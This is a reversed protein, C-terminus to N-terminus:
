RTVVKGRTFAHACCAQVWTDLVAIVHHAPVAQARYLMFGPMYRGDVIEKSQLWVTRRAVAGVM